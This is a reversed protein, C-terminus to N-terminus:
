ANPEMTHLVGIDTLAKDLQRLEDALFCWCVEDRRDFDCNWAGTDSEQSAHECPSNPGERSLENAAILLAGGKGIPPYKFTYAIHEAKRAREFQERGYAQAEALKQLTNEREHTWRWWVYRIAMRVRNIRLKIRWFRPLGQTFHPHASM